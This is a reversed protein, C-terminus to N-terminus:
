NQEWSIPPNGAALVLVLANCYLLPFFLNSTFISIFPKKLVPQLRANLRWKHPKLECSIRRSFTKVLHRSVDATPPSITKKARNNRVKSTTVACHRKKKKGKRCLQKNAVPLHKGAPARVSYDQLHFGIVWRIFFSASHDDRIQQRPRSTGRGARGQLKCLFWVQRPRIM